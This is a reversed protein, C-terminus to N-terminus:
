KILALLAMHRRPVGDCDFSLLALLVDQCIVQHEQMSPIVLLVWGGVHLHEEGAELSGKRGADQSDLICFVLHTQTKPPLM